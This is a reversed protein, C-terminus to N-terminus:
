GYTLPRQKYWRWDGTLEQANTEILDAEASHTLDAVCSTSLYVNIPLVIFAGAGPNAVMGSTDGPLGSYMMKTERLAVEPNEGLYLIECKPDAPTGNSFRSDVTKSHNASTATKL